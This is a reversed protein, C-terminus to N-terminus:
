RVKNRSFKKHQEQENTQDVLKENREIVAKANKLDKRLKGISETLTDRQQILEPLQSDDECRSIQKYLREREKVLAPIKEQTKEM